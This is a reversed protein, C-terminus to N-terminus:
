SLVKVSVTGSWNLTDSCNDNERGNCVGKTTSTVGGNAYPASRPFSVQFPGIDFGPFMGIQLPVGAGTNTGLWRSTYYDDPATGDSCSRSVPQLPDPILVGRRDFLFDFPFHLTKYRAACTTTQTGGCGDRTTDSFNDEANGITPDVPTSRYDVFDLNGSADFQEAPKDVDIKWSGTWSFTSHLSGSFTDPATCEVDPNSGSYSADERGSVTSTVLLTLDKDLDDKVPRPPKRTAPKPKSPPGSYTSSGSIIIIKPPAATRAKRSSAAWKILSWRPNVTSVRMSIISVRKPHSRDRAFAAKLGRAEAGTPLRAAGATGAGLVLTGVLASV